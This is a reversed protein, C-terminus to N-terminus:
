RDQNQDLTRRSEFNIKAVLNNVNNAIDATAAAEEKKPTNVM